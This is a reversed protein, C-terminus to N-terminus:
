KISVPQSSALWSMVEGDCM